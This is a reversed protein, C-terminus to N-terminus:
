GEKKLSCTALWVGLFTRGDNDRWLHTTVFGVEGNVGVQLQQVFVRIQEAM